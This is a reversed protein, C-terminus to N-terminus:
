IHWIGKPTILYDIIGNKLHTFAEEPREVIPENHVNFSTNVLCGIGSKAKFNNLINYFLANSEPTVIQIRATKDIPHVITPISDKFEPKTDFLLTMYQAAHSSKNVEFIRDAEVDMVAPAFPMFDNRQLKDNLIRYTEDNRPDCIISRNGLARPGHESRGQYLGIIKKTLLLETIWEWNEEIPYFTWQPLICSAALSIEDESYENGLYMNFKTPTFEPNFQKLALLACGLSLGEDGMPPAIFVEDVWDLENIAKNLKVNAFIGGALALKKVNPYKAHYNLLLEVVKQEFIFQGTYAIDKKCDDSKWYKSGFEHFIAFNLKQYIGGSEIHHEDLNTKTGEIRLLDKWRSYLEEWLIGHSSLGVVKGEDKLRKFGCIETIAAYFHGLSTRNNTNGDIYKLDGNVGLYMKSNYGNGGSADANFVLTDENFGSLYYATAAHAQHHDFKIFKNPPITFNFINFIPISQEYQLFSVFYDIENLELGYRNILTEICLMPYRDINAEFDVYPKIRVLREEELVAILEGKKIYAVSCSHAGAIFSLINYNCKALRM